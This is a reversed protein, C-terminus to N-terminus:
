KPLEIIKGNLSIMASVIGSWNDWRLPRTTTRSCKLMCLHLPLNKRVILSGDVSLRLESKRGRFTLVIAIAVVGCTTGVNSLLAPLDPGVFRQLAGQAELLLAHRVFV